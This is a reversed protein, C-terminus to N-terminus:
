IEDDDTIHITHTNMYIIQERAFEVENNIMEADLKSDENLLMISLILPLNVGTIVHLNLRNLYPVFYQNVSGHSIDTFVVVEVGRKLDEFIPESLKNINSEDVYAILANLIKKNGLLMQITSQIGIAMNGHTMLYFTRM